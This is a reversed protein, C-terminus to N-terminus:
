RTAGRATEHPGFQPGFEATKPASGGRGDTAVQRLSAADDRVARGAALFVKPSRLMSSKSISPPHHMARISSPSNWRQSQGWAWGVGSAASSHGSRSDSSPGAVDFEVFSLFRFHPPREPTRAQFAHEADTPRPAKERWVAVQLITGKVPCVISRAGRTRRKMRSSLAAGVPSGLRM